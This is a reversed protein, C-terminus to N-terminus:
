GGVADSHTGASHPRPPEEEEEENTKILQPCEQSHQRPFITGAATIVYMLCHRPTPKVVGRQNLLPHSHPSGCLFWQPMKSWSFAPLFCEFPWSVDNILSLHQKDSFLSENGSFLDIQVLFMVRNVEKQLRTSVIHWYYNWSNCM